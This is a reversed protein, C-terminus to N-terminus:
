DAEDLSFGVLKFVVADKCPRASEALDPPTIVLHQMANVSFMLPQDHGIMTVRAGGSRSVKVHPLQLPATPWGLAIAYFTKGDPSVTYRIDQPTYGGKPDAIGGFHGKEHKDSSPGGGYVKWPRTGYIAEGNVKLWQGIELLVQRQDAPITGDAMPSINLLLCGNKSVIDILSHLVVATPKISLNRTYCWSGRSITDDTLWAFDTRKDMRGKELDLLAVDQPLDQQKFTVVPDKGAQKSRNFYYALFQQRADEPIEDLWSDFWILDPQYRDIVEILKALWYDVFQERPMYGYLIASQRDDLLAPFEKKVFEYHGTWKGDKLWLNNRAHHFSIVFRMGRARIAKELEGAIDRHPGKEAANWPTVQSAWMAFGDHHEGVPGAFQAGSQKFLDAWAAADFKEAKFMPVLEPYGFQAQPGFSDVHHKFEPKSQIYMHRPYWENGFAPVSYVGWHFYIGFKADRYWDPAENIRGLSAWNPQYPGAENVQRAADVLKRVNAAYPQPLDNPEDGFGVSAILLM